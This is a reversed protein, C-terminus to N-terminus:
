HYHAVGAGSVTELGVSSSRFSLLVHEETPSSFRHTACTDSMIMLEVLRAGSGRSEAGGWDDCKGVLILGLIKKAKDFITRSM